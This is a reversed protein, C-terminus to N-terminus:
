QTSKPVPEWERTTSVDTVSCYKTLLETYVSKDTVYFLDDLVKKKTMHDASLIGQFYM